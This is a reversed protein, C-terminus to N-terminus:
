RVDLLSCANAHLHLVKVVPPTQSTTISERQDRPLKASFTWFDPPTLARQLRTGADGESDTCFVHLHEPLELQLICVKPPLKHGGKRLSAGEAARAQWKRAAVRPRRGLLLIECAM